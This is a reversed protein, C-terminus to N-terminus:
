ARCFPMILVTDCGPFAAFVSPLCLLRDCTDRADFWIVLLGLLQSHVRCRSMDRSKPRHHKCRRCWSLQGGPRTTKDAVYRWCTGGGGRGCRHRTVEPVSPHPYLRRQTVPCEKPLAIQRSSRSCKRVLVRALFASYQESLRPTFVSKRKNQYHIAGSVVCQVKYALACDTGCLAFTVKHTAIVSNIPVFNALWNRFHSAINEVSQHPVHAHLLFPLVLRLPFLNQRDVAALFPLFTRKQSRQHPSAHFPYVRKGAYKLFSCQAHQSLFLGRNKVFPIPMRLDRACTM